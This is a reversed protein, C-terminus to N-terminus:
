KKTEEDFVKDYCSNCLPPMSSRTQNIINGKCIECHIPCGYYSGCSCIM